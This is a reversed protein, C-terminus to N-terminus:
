RWKSLATGKATSLSILMTAEAIKSQTLPGVVPLSYYGIDVIQCLVLRFYIPPRVCHALGNFSFILIRGTAAVFM